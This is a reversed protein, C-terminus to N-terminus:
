IAPLIARDFANCGDNHLDNFVTRHFELALSAVIYKCWTFLSIWLAAGMSRLCAFGFWLISFVHQINVGNDIFSKFGM